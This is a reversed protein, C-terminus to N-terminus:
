SWVSFGGRADYTVKSTNGESGTTTIDVIFGTFTYNLGAMQVDFVVPTIGRTGLASGGITRDLPGVLQTEFGTAPINCELTINTMPSGPSEGRYGGPLSNVPKSNSSQKLTMSVNEYQISGGITVYPVAYIQSNTANAM